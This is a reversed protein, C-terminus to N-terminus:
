GMQKKFKEIFDVDYLLRVNQEAQNDKLYYKGEIKKIDYNYYRVLESVRGRVSSGVVNSKESLEEETLGDPHEELTKIISKQAKSQPKLQGLEFIDKCRKMYEKRTVKQTDILKILFNRTEPRVISSLITCAWWPYDNYEGNPSIGYFKHRTVWFDESNDFSKSLAQPLNKCAVRQKYMKQNFEEILKGVCWHDYSNKQKEMSFLYDVHMAKLDEVLKDYGTKLKEAMFMEDPSLRHSPSSVKNKDIHM